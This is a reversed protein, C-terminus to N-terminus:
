CDVANEFEPLTKLYAYAQTIPNSGELSYPYSIGEEAFYAVGTNDKYKRLVCYAATKNVKVDEVRCYAGFVEFGYATKIPTNLKLAM